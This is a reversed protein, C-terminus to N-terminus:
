VIQCAGGSCAIEGRQDTNDDEEVILDVDIPNIKTILDEYTKKSIDEFPAQVYSGGDYPLVSIGSYISRNEWMWEGVTGWEDEKISVTLSVNHTNSGKRHGVKIWDENVKKMRELLEIPSETRLISGEPAKIPFSIIALDKKMLDDELMDPNVISFYHYMSENKGVRIRRIFYDNHWAHIGSSTGLLTSTTGEPKVCCARAAKNIKLIKALRENEKKVIEAGQKLDINDIFRKTAIGTMSVGLLAEKETNKRWIDRLYHFDTYTAQITGLISAAKCRANFDEQSEIDGVNITTLNCFMYPRLAIENCPNAGWDKDNTFFIGPEGSGSFKIKKWIIDFDEKNIKHRVLTVSNNARGRQPNAEYWNGYKCSLMEDDDFSFLSIMAARRIGGSLVADAIYCMIDHAEIPKLRTNRGREEIARDLVKRINHVCDKLPQPGPAKGGSTVLRAGKSRIDRYDFQVEKKGLFYSEILIKITDAWGEISDGILYRKPHEGEATKIDGRLPPLKEIHHKQCSFGFGSGGLLLFMAEAFIEIDEIPAYCCNYMRNPSLEIPKGAFQLSRMSPLVKKEYVFNYAWDIDEKLSQFKNLHMDKNRGIIETWNERKRNQSLYKAYKSHITVKSLIESADDM